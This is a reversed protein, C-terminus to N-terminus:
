QAKNYYYAAKQKQALRTYIDGLYKAYESKPSLKYLKLFYDRSTRYDEYAIDLKKLLRKYQKTTRHNKYAKMETVYLDEAKRFNSKAFWELAEQNNPNMKLLQAALETSEKTNGLNKQVVLYVTLLEETSRADEDIEPWLDAAWQWNKSEVYTEFLRITFEDMKEGQPYKERYNELATMEKSLNDIKYYIEAQLTYLEPDDYQLYDAVSLYKGAREYQEVEMAAQGANFYVAADAKKGKEQYIEIAQDWATLASDYNGEQYATNGENILQQTACSHIIFLLILGPLLKNLRM